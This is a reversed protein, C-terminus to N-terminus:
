SGPAGAVMIYGILLRHGSSTADHEPLVKIRLVHRGPPLGHTLTAYHNRPFYPGPATDVVGGRDAKGHHNNESADISWSFKGGDRQVDLFLAVATGTFAYELADGPRRANITGHRYRGQNVPPKVEWEGSLTAEAPPVLRTTAFEASVLPAPLSPPPSPPADIQSNLYTVIAQTYIAHGLANPHVSDSMFVQGPQTWDLNKDKLQAPTPRPLDTRKLAELLPPQLDIQPIGYHRAVAPHSGRRENLTRSTTYLFVVEPKSRSAWLQRIIGEMTAKHFDGVPSGDNINFVVFVLDPDHAVVDVGCRFAGLDSGTGGIAANVERVEAKPFRSRFWKTVQVRYGSAATISGGFYAITVPQGAKLKTFVRGLTRVPAAASEGAPAASITGFLIFIGLPMARM